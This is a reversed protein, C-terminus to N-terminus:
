DWWQELNQELIKFLLKRAKNQKNYAAEIKDATLKDENILAEIYDENQIKEILRVSLMMRDADYKSNTHYGYKRTHDATFILKHKLIELIYYHDWQEDKWIIPLWRLLNKTRRIIRRIRWM